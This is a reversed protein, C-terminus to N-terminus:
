ALNIWCISPQDFPARIPSIPPDVLDMDGLRPPRAQCLSADGDVAAFGFQLGRECRILSVRDAVQECADGFGTASGLRQCQLRLSM